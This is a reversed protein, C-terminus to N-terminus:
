KGICFTAFIRELVDDATTEGVLDALADLADHVHAAAYEPSDGSALAIQAAQASEFARRVADRQRASGLMASHAEAPPAGAIELRAALESRLIAGADRAVGCVSFLRRDPPVPALDPPEGGRSPVRDIKNAAVLLREPDLGAIERDNEATWGESADFVYLIVDASAGAARARGVGIREVADETARLGATDVISVPVGAIDLAIELTDRTTGPVDTVIAREVGALANFLTSKGANPLGLLVVRAGESLLRGRDSTSALRALGAAASAIDRTTGPAVAEGVDESFDITAALEAAARTLDERISALSLSLEGSVRRASASAAAPTRAEILERVAEAEVLDLKGLLFARETFEGPRAPRGGAAALADLVSGVIVPSGHLTIEFVDEGTASGPGPFFTVLARDVPVRVDSEASRGGDSGVGAVSGFIECLTPRRDPPPSPFGPAVRALIARARSGSVRVLALASRGPPTALAVITDELSFRDAHM